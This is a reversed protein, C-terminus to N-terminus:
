SPSPPLQSLLQRLGSRMEEDDRIIHDIVGAQRLRQDREALHRLQELTGAPLRAPGLEALVTVAREQTHSSVDAVTAVLLDALRILPVGGLSGPDIRLLACTAAPVHAPDDLLLVIAPVLPMALVGLVAAADAATAALWGGDARPHDPSLAEALVPIAPAADGTVATLALALEIRAHNEGSRAGPNVGPSLAAAIAPALSAGAPGLRAIATAVDGLEHGHGRLGDELVALFPEDAGTLDRLLSAASTREWRRGTAATQRLLPLLDPHGPDVAALTIAANLPPVPQLALVEPIAPAADPGWSRVLAFLDGPINGRVRRARVEPARLYGRVAELLAPDCPLAPSPLGPSPLAPSPLLLSPPAPVQSRAANAAAALAHPRHRLDRALLRAVRPDGLDILCALAEDARRDPGVVEAAAAVRDTVASEAAGPIGAAHLERLLCLASIGADADAAAVALPLVLAQAPSRYARALEAASWASRERVRGPGPPARFASTRVPGSQPGAPAAPGPDAYTLGASVLRTAADPEGREALALILGEFPDNDDWFDPLVEGDAMWATAAAHLGTTWPQGAAVCAVAAILCLGGDARGPDAPDPAALVSSAPVSSALVSSALVPAALDAALAPELVSLAKLVTARVTPDAEAAWRERLLPVLGPARAQTLVWIATARVRPDPGALLPALLVAQAAVAARAGGPEPLDREDTSAAISGLLILVERTLLGAAAIRALFPAAAVSAPYVSGQHCLSGFLEHFAEEASNGGSALTRLLAPVSDDAYACELKRWPIDKLGALIDRKDV